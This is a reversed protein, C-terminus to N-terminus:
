VAQPEGGPYQEADRIMMEIDDKALALGGTIQVPQQKGTGLDTASVNVIGNADLLRGARWAVTFPGEANAPTPSGEFSMLEEQILNLSTQGVSLSGPLGSM